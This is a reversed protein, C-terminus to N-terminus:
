VFNYSLYRDDYEADEGNGQDFTKEHKGGMQAVLGLLVALSTTLTYFAITRLGLRGLDASGGLGSVGVIMSSAILPVILMKLANLTIVEYLM